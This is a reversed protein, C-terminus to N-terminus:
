RSSALLLLLLLVAANNGSGTDLSDVYPRAGGEEVLAIPDLTNDDRQDDPYSPKRRVEWHVHNLSSTVGVQDGREYHRGVAPYTFTSSSLPNYTWWLPNLHALLHYYGSQDGRILVGGPGYGTFPKTKDDTFVAVVTGSEPAFVATGAPGALDVGYHGKSHAPISSDGYAGHPTARANAVPYDVYSDPSKPM